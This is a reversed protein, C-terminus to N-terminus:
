TVNEYKKRSLFYLEIKNKINGWKLGSIVYIKKELENVVSFSNYLTM